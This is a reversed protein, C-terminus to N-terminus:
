PRFKPATVAPVEGYDPTLAHPTSSPERFRALVAIAVAPIASRSPLARVIYGREGLLSLVDETEGAIGLTAGARVPALLTDIVRATVGCATREGDLSLLRACIVGARGPVITLVPLHPDDPTLADYSSIGVLPLGAGYALSKAFSVAIRIGTFSGPGVGVALRDIDRLALGARDLLAAIRQLGSELADHGSSRDLLIREGDLVAVSFFGLAADLALVRM